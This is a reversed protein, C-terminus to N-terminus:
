EEIKFVRDKCIHAALNVLLGRTWSSFALLPGPMWMRTEQMNDMTYPYAPLEGYLPISSYLFLPVSSYLTPPILLIKPTGYDM